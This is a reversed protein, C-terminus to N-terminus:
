NCTVMFMKSPPMYSIYINYIAEVEMIQIYDPGLSNNTTKFYTQGLIRRTPIEKIICFLVVYNPLTNNIKNSNGDFGM